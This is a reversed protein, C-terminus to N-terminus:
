LDLFNNRIFSTIMHVPCCFPDFRCHLHLFRARYKCFFPTRVLRYLFCLKKNRRKTHILCFQISLSDPVENHRGSPRLIKLAQLILLIVHGLQKLLLIHQRNRYSPAPVASSYTRYRSLLFFQPLIRGSQKRFQNQDILIFALLSDPGICGPLRRLAPNPQRLYVVALGIIGAIFRLLRQRCDDKVSGPVRQNRLLPRFNNLLLANRRGSDKRSWLSLSHHIKPLLYGSIYLNGNPRVRSLDYFEGMRLDHVLFAIEVGLVVATCFCFVDIDAPVPHLGILRLQRKVPKSINPNILERSPNRSRLRQIKRCNDHMRIHLPRSIKARRIGQQIAQKIIHDPPLLPIEQINGRITRLSILPKAPEAICLHKRLRGAQIIIRLLEKGFPKRIHCDILAFVSIYTDDNRGRPIIRLRRRGPSICCRNTRPFDIHRIAIRGNKLCLKHTHSFPHIKNGTIGCCRIQPRSAFMVSVPKAQICRGSAIFTRGSIIKNCRCEVCVRGRQHDFRPM